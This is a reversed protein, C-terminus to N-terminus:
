FSRISVETKVYSLNNYARLTLKHAFNAFMKKVKDRNVKSEKKLRNIKVSKSVPSLKAMSYKSSPNRSADKIEKSVNSSREANEDVHGSEQMCCSCVNFVRDGM